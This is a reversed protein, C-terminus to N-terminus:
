EKPIGPHYIIRSNSSTLSEIKDIDAILPIATGFGVAQRGVNFEVKTVHNYKTIVEPTITEEPHVLFLMGDQVWQFGGGVFQGDDDFEQGYYYTVGDVVMEDFQHMDELDETMTFAFVWVPSHKEGELRM